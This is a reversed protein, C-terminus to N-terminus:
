LVTLKGKKGTSVQIQGQYESTWGDEIKIKNGEEVLATQENWLTLQVEGTSDKAACNCVKGSGNQNAFERVDGVSVVELELSDVPARAKLENVKM